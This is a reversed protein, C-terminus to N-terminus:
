VPNGLLASLKQFDLHPGLWSHFIKLKQKAFGRVWEKGQIRAAFLADILAGQSAQAPEQVSYSDRCSRLDITGYSREGSMMVSSKRVRYSCQRMKMLILTRSSLFEDASNLAAQM